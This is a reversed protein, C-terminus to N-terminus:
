CGVERTRWQERNIVTQFNITIVNNLIKQKTKTFYVFYM